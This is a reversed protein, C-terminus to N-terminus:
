AELASRMLSLAEELNPVSNAYSLRLHGEGYEGFATGALTAVGADYLLRDALDRADLGTATINPFAYFAGRPEIAAAGCRWSPSSPSPRWASRWPGRSSEASGCGACPSWTRSDSRFM